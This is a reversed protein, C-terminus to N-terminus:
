DGAGAANQRQGLKEEALAKVAPYDPKGTALLPLTPVTVVVRPVMVEAIGQERAKALLAAVAADGKDTVLV